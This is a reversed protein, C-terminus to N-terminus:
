GNLARVSEEVYNWNFGCNFVYDLFSMNPLFSNWLQNYQIPIYDQYRLAIGNDAFHQEVQYIRAGNGSLYETAGLNCCIDIVRDERKSNIGLSSSRIIKCDIGFKEFFVSNIAINIEALNDYKQTLVDFFIPYVDKFFKAKSYNMQLTKLHKDKWGLEDKTRVQNIMEGFSYVVPIKLRLSGQSTKITNFNHAAENSFQADDLYVFIDSKAVKYFFGLWPIYDPQHISVTM